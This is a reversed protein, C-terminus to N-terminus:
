VYDDVKESDVKKLVICNTTKDRFKTIKCDMHLLSLGLSM